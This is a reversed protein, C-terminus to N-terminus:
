IGVVIEFMDRIHVSSESIEVFVDFSPNKLLPIPIKGNQM